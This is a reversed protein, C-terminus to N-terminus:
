SLKRSYRPHHSWLLEGIMRARRPISSPIHRLDQIDEGLIRLNPFLGDEDEVIVLIVAVKVMKGWKYYGIRGAFFFSDERFAHIGCTLINGHGLFQLCAKLFLVRALTRDTKAKTHGQNDSRGPGAASPD